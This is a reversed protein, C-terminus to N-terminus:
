VDPWLPRQAMRACDKWRALNLERVVAVPRWEAGGVPRVLDARGLVGVETAYVIAAWSFPGLDGDRTLVFWQAALDMLM